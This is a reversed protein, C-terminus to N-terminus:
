GTGRLLRAAVWGLLLVGGIMVSWLVIKRWPLVEPQTLRSEGGLEVWVSDTTALPLNYISRYDGQVPLFLEHSHFGAPEAAASGFALTYPAPGQPVFLLRAPTWYVRLALSDGPMPAAQEDVTVRWYRYLGRYVPIPPSRRLSDGAPLNYVVGSKHLMWAGDPEAASEIRIRMLSQRAPLEIQASDAPLNIPIHTMYVGEAQKELPLVVSARDPSIPKNNRYRNERHLAHPVPQGAANFVRLDGLDDQALHQYVVAPLVVSQVPQGGLTDIHLGYAFDAPKLEQANAPAALLMLAYLATLAVYQMSSIPILMM